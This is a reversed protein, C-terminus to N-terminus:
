ALHRLYRAARTRAEIASHRAPPKAPLLWSKRLNNFALRATLTEGGRDRRNRVAFVGDKDRRYRRWFSAVAIPPCVRCRTAPAFMSTIDSIPPLHVVNRPSKWYSASRMRARIPLGRILCVTSRTLTRKLRYPVFNSCYMSSRLESSVISALQGEYLASSSRDITCFSFTIRKPSTKNQRM